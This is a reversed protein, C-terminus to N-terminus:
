VLVLKKVVHTNKIGQKKLASVLGAVQRNLDNYSLHSRTGDERCFRIAIQDDKYRLLNEAFNLTSGQFWNAGPMKKIDDVILDYPSHYIIQSFDWLEAWFDEAREISWRYLQSYNEIELECNNNVYKIFQAMQSNEVRKKSPNWMISQM